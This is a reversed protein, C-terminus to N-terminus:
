QEGQLSQITMWSVASESMMVADEKIQEAKTVLRGQRQNKVEQTNSLLSVPIIIFMVLPM